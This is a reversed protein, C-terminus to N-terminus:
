SLFSVIHEIVEPDRYIKRHGLGNTLHFRIHPHKENIIPHVDSIPTIDDDADHIWLIKARTFQVARRISFWQAPKGSVMLIEKELAEQIKQNQIGLMWMGKQIATTTETAPALFVVKVDPAVSINELALALGLGGFSHAIYADLPGYLQLIHTIVSAYDLAHATKGESHGHAPADFALVEYGQQILPEIFHDFTHVSSSFGHLILAKKPAGANCRYGRICLNNWQFSLPEYTNFRSIRKHGPLAIPTTFLRFSQKGTLRPSVKSLVQLQIRIIKFALKKQVNM